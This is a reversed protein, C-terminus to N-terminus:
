SDWQVETIPEGLTFGWPTGFMVWASRDAGNRDKVEVRFLSQNESRMFRAPGEFAAAGRFGVLTLGQERAWRSLRWRWYLRGLLLLAVVIITGAALLCNSQWGCDPDIM